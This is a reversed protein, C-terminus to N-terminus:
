GIGTFPFAALLATAGVVLAAFGAEVGAVPRGRRWAITSLVLMVAIGASKLTLVLGYPTSWLDSLAALEEAARLVGTLATIGFAILVAAAVFGGIQFVKRMEAEKKM